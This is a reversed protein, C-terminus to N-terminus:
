TAEELYPQCMNYINFFHFILKNIIANDNTIRIGLEINRSGTLNESGFLALRLGGAPGQDRIYLKAHLDDHIVIDAGIKELARFTELFAQYGAARKDPPRSIVVIEIEEKEQAIYIARYFKRLLKDRIHLWPSCILIRKFDPQSLLGSIFQKTMGERVIEYPRLHPDLLTLHHIVDAINAGNIGRILHWIRRGRDTLYFYSGAKQILIRQILEEIIKEFSEVGYDAALLPMDSEAVEQRNLMNELLQYVGKEGVININLLESM